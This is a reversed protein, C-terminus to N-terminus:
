PRQGEGVNRDEITSLEEELDIRWARAERDYGADPEAEHWADYLRILREISETVRTESASVDVGIQTGDRDLLRFFPPTVSRYRVLGRYGELMLSEADIFDKQHMLAEGLMSTSYFRAWHDDLTQEGNELIERLLEEAQGYAKLQLYTSALTNMCSLTDSHDSGKRRASFGIM